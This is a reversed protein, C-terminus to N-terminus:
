LEAFVEDAPASITGGGAVVIQGLVEAFDFDESPITHETIGNYKIEVNFSPSEEYTCYCASTKETCCAFGPNAVMEVTVRSPDNDRPGRHSNARIKQLGWARLADEYLMPM